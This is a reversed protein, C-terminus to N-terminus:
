WKIEKLIVFLIVLIICVFLFNVIMELPLSGMLMFWTFTFGFVGLILVINVFVIFVFIDRLVTTFTFGNKYGHFFEDDSM